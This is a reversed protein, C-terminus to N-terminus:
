LPECGGDLHEINEEVSHFVGPLCGLTHEWAGMWLRGDVNSSRMSVRRCIM